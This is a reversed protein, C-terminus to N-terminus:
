DEGAALPRTQLGSPLEVHLVQYGAGESIAFGPGVALHEFRWTGAPHDVHYSPARLRAFPPAVYTEEYTSGDPATARERYVGPGPPTGALPLSGLFFNWTVRDFSADVTFSDVPLQNASAQQAPATVNVGAIRQFHFLQDIGRPVVVIGQHDRGHAVLRMQAYGDLTLMTLHGVAADYTANGRGLVLDTGLARRVLASTPLNDQQVQPAYRITAVLGDVSLVEARVTKNANEFTSTWSAGAILPFKLPTFPVDHVRWSLDARKLEGLGPLHTSIVADAVGEDEIAYGVLHEDATAGAVVLTIERSPGDWDIPDVEYRWWQGVEWAPAAALSPTATSAAQLAVPALLLVLLAPAFRSPRM